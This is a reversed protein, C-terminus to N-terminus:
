LYLSPTIGPWVLDYKWSYWINVTCPIMASLTYINKNFIRWEGDVNSGETLAVIESHLGTGPDVSIEQLFQSLVYLLKKYWLDMNKLPRRSVNSVFRVFFRDRITKKVIFARLFFYLFVSSDHCFLPSVSSHSLLFKMNYFIDPSLFDFVDYLLIFSVM